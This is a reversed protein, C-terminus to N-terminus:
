EPIVRLEYGVAKLLHIVTNIYCDRSNSLYATVTAPCVGAKRALQSMNMNKAEMESRILSRISEKMQEANTM